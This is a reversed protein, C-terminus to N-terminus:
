TTRKPKPQRSEMQKNTKNMKKKPSLNVPQMNYYIGSSNPSHQSGRSATRPPPGPPSPGNRPSGSPLTETISMLNAMPSQTASQPAPPTSNGLSVPPLSLPLPITPPYVLFLNMNLLWFHEARIYHTPNSHYQSLLAKRKQKLSYKMWKKKENLNIEGFFKACQNHFLNFAGRFKHNYNIYENANNAMLLTSTDCLIFWYLDCYIANCM